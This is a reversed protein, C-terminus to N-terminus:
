IDDPSLDQQAAHRISLVLVCDPRITFLARHTPHRGLGFHLERLEYPFRHDERAPPYRQPQDGLALIARAFGDYWREAQQASRNKAWWDCAADLEVHAADTLHVPLTM